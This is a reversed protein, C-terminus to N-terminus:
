CLFGDSYTKGYRNEESNRKNFTYIYPKQRVAGLGGM